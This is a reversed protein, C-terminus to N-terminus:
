ITFIYLAVFTSPTSTWLGLSLSLSLLPLPSLCLSPLPPPPLVLSLFLPFTFGFGLFLSASPWVRKKGRFLDHWNRIDRSIICYVHVNNIYTYIIEHLLRAQLAQGGTNRFIGMYRPLHGCLIHHYANYTYSYIYMYIYININVNYVYCHYYDCKFRKAKEM